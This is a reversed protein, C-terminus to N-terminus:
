LEIIFEAYTKHNSLFLKGNMSKEIIMKSMYLGIGTGKDKTTFYPDFIKDVLNESIGGANDSIIVRVKTEAKEISIKIEPNPIKREEIVDLSNAIINLVVQSFESEFGLVKIDNVYQLSIKTRTRNFRSGLLSLAKEIGQAVIYFEHKVKNPQFFNRFDDITGSIHKLIEIFEKEIKQFTDSDLEGFDYSDRLKQFITALSTLPQRWQHAINGIMEGMAALRSQHILIHDKDRNKKLEEQITNELSINLNQIELEVRKKETVDLIMIVLFNREDIARFVSKTQYLYITENNRIIKEESFKETKNKFDEFIVNDIEPNHFTFGLTNYLIENKSIRYIKCFMENVAICKGTEEILCIGLLANEFISEFLVQNYRSRIEWIRIETVNHVIAMRLNPKSEINRIPILTIDFIKDDITLESDTEGELFAERFIPSLAEYYNDSVIQELKKGSANSASELIQVGTALVINLNEDFLILDSSPINSALIKYREESLELNENSNKLEILSHELNAKSIELALTREKVKAELKENTTELLEIFKKNVTIDQVSFSILDVKGKNKIPSFTFKFWFVTDNPSVVKKEVEITKGQFTFELNKKFDEYDGPLIFDIMSSGYEMKKNFFELSKEFATRNFEHIILDRDILIFTQITNDLLSRTNVRSSLLENKTLELENNLTKLETYAVQLEEYIAQLEENATELEENTAQLEQNSSMLEENLVQLEENSTEMEEMYNSLTERTAILEKEIQSTKTESFPQIQNLEELESLSFNEIVLIYFENEFETISFKKLLLKIYYKKEDIIIVRRSENRNQNKLNILDVVLEEDILNLINYKVLGTKLKIFPFVEGHIEIIEFDLSLVLYPYHFNSHVIETLESKLKKSVDQKKPFISKEKKIQNKELKIQKSYLFKEEQSFFQNSINSLAVKGLYLKGSKNLSHHFLELIKRQYDQKLHQIFKVSFIFDLRLFPAEIFINHVSTLVLNKIRKKIQYSTDKKDFFKERMSEPFTNISSETYVGSRPIKLTENEFETAFIQVPLSLSNREIIDYVLIAISFSFEGEGGYPIWIRLSEGAKKQLIIEELQNKIPNTSTTLDFFKTNNKFLELNMKQIESEDDELRSYLRNISDTKNLNLFSKIKRKLFSEKFYKYNLEQREILLEYVDEITNEKEKIVIKQKSFIEKLKLGIHETSLIFDINGSEIASVPMGSYKAESPNEAITFGKRRQVEKLGLTGDTGTGSLIIGISNEKFEESISQFLLNVSPKPTISLNSEEIKFEGEQITVNKGAPCIYVYGPKIELNKKIPVVKLWSHTKLLEPLKSEHSSSLHQAVVVSFPFEIKPVNKLFKRISELGGASAGIGVLFFDKM